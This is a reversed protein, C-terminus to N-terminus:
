VDDDYLAAVKGQADFLASVVPIMAQDLFRVREALGFLTVALINKVDEVRGARSALRLSNDMRRSPIEDPCKGGALINEFHAMVVNEPTSGIDSPHRSM